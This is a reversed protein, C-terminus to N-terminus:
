RPKEDDPLQLSRPAPRRPEPVRRYKCRAFLFVLALIHPFIHRTVCEFSDPLTGLFEMDVAM